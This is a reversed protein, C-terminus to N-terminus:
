KNIHVFRYCLANLADDKESKIEPRLREVVGNYYEAEGQAWDFLEKDVPEQNHENSQKKLELLHVIKNKIAKDSVTSDVLETFRVHPVTGYDTLWKCVLIDRLYCFFRKLPLGFKDAIPLGIHNLYNCHYDTDIVGDFDLFINKMQYTLM